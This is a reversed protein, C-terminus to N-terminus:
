IGGLIYSVISTELYNWCSFTMKQLQKLVKPYLKLLWGQVESSKLSIKDPTILLM